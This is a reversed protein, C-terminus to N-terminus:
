IVDRSHDELYEDPEVMQITPEGSIRVGLVELVNLLVEQFKM